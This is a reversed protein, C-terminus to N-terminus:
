LSPEMPERQPCENQFGLWWARLFGLWMSDMYTNWDLLRSLAWGVGALLHTYMTLVGQRPSWWSWRCGRSMGPSFQRLGIGLGCLIIIIFFSTTTEHRLYDALCCCCCFCHPFPVNGPTAPCSGLAWGLQRNWSHQRSFVARSGGLWPRPVAGVSCTAAQPASLHAPPAQGRVYSRQACLMKLLDLAAAQGGHSWGMHVGPPWM